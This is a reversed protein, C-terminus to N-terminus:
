HFQSPPKHTLTKRSRTSLVAHPTQAIITPRHAGTQGIEPPPILTRTSEPNLCIRTSSSTDLSTANRLICFSLLRLMGALSCAPLISCLGSHSLACIAKSQRQGRMEM